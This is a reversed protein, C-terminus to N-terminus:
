ADEPDDILPKDSTPLKLTRRLMFEALDSAVALDKELQKSSSKGLHLISSRVSHLHHLRRRILQDNSITYIESLGSLVNNPVNHGDSGIFAELSTWFGVYKNVWASAAKANLYWYLARSVL